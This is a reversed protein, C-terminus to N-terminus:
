IDHYHKALETLNHCRSTHEHDTKDIWTVEFQDHAFPDTVLQRITMVHDEIWKIIQVATMDHKITSM